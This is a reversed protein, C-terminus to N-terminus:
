QQQNLASYRAQLTDRCFMGTNSAVNGFPVDSADMMFPVARPPLDRISAPLRGLSSRLPPRKVKPNQSGWQSSKPRSAEYKKRPVRVLEAAKAEPPLGIRAMGKMSSAVPWGRLAMVAWGPGGTATAPLKAM